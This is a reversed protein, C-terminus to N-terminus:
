YTIQCLTNRLLTNIKSAGLWYCLHKCYLWATGSNVDARRISFIELVLMLNAVIHGFTLLCTFDSVFNM